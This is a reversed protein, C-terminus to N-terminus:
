LIRTRNSCAKRIEDRRMSSTQDLPQAGWCRGSRNIELLDIVYFLPEGEGTLRAPLLLERRGGVKMGKLGEELGLMFDRAGIEFGSYPPPIRDWSSYRVEGDIGEAYYEITLRDGERSPAGVGENLDRTVLKTPPNRPPRIDPETLSVPNSPTSGSDASQADDNGGCAVLALSIALAAVPGFHKL